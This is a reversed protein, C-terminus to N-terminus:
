IEQKFISQIVHELPFQKKITDLVKFIGKKLKKKKKWGSLISM